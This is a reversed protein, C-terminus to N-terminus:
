DVSSVAEGAYRVLNDLTQSTGRACGDQRFQELHDKSECQIEVTMDTGGAAPELTVRGIAGM